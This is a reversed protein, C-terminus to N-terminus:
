QSFTLRRRRCHNAVDNQMQSRDFTKNVKALIRSLQNINWKSWVCGRIKQERLRDKEFIEFCFRRFKRWSFYEFLTQCFTQDVHSHHYGSPVWADCLLRWLHKAKRSSQLQVGSFTNIKFERFEWKNKQSFSRKLHCFDSKLM